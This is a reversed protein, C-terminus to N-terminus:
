HKNINDCYLNFNRATLNIDSTTEIEITGDETIKFRAVKGGSVREMMLDGVDSVTIKSHNEGQKRVVEFNGKEDLEFQTFNDAEHHIPSDLQRKITIKGDEGVEIFSLTKEDNTDRTIRFKGNNELFFKTWTLESDDFFSTRHVFLFNMPQQLEPWDTEYPRGIRNDIETLDKHDFGQHRDNVQITEESLNSNYGVFFSKSVTSIEINGEGDVKKYAQSPYIQLTKLAERREWGAVWERIPYASPNINEIGDPRQYTGLIVPRHKMNELFTVLVISGVAIPEITGWAKKRDKDYHATAGMIKASFKGEQLESSTYQDGSNILQVDATGHKHHVKLVRGLAMFGGMNMDDRYFTQVRGLSNQLRVGQIEHM